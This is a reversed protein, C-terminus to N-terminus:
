NKLGCVDRSCTKELIKWCRPCKQGKAKVIKV